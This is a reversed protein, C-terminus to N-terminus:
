KSDFWLIIPILQEFSYCEHIIAEATNCHERLSLIGYIYSAITQPSYGTSLRIHVYVYTALCAVFEFQSFSLVCVTSNNALYSCNWHDTDPLLLDEWQLLSTYNYGRCTVIYEAISCMFYNLAIYCITILIWLTSLWSYVQLQYLESVMTLQFHKPPTVQAMFQYGEKM